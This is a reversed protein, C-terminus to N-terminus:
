PRQQVLRIRRGPAVQVQAPSQVTISRVNADVDLVTNHRITVATGPGPLRNTNWIAPSSWNGAQITAAASDATSALVSVLTGPENSYVGNAAAVVITFSSSAASAPAQYRLVFDVSTGPM